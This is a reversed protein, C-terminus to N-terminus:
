PVFFFSNLLNEFENLSEAQESTSVTNLKILSLVYRQNNKLALCSMARLATENPEAFKQCIASVNNLSIARTELIKRPPFENSSSAFEALTQGELASEVHILASAGNPLAFVADTGTETGIWTSPYNLAYKGSSNTYGQLKPPSQTTSGRTPSASTAVPTAIVRTSTAVVPSTPTPAVATLAAATPTPPLWFDRTFYAAVGLAATAVLISLGHDCIFCASPDFRSENM